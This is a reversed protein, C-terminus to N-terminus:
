PINLDDILGAEQVLNLDIVQDEFAVGARPSNGSVSFIGFPLNHITFDLAQNYM